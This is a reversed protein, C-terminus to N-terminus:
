QQLLHLVSAFQVFKQRLAAAGAAQLLTIAV